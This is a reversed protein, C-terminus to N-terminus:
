LVLILVDKHPKDAEDEDQISDQGDDPVEGFFPHGQFSGHKLRQQKDVSKSVPGCGTTMRLIM